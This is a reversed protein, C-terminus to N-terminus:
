EPSKLSEVMDIQRLKFFMVANVILSFLITFLLSYIYSSTYVVRGFMVSDVEVTQVIFMCLVRGLVVGFIAGLFTLLINERYVYTAVEGDYFGLVKLTALERLRETINISNLNYLVVFALLGASVILVVIVLNLSKLMDDLQDQVDHMYTVNLVGDQELIDRGTDEVQEKTYDDPTEFMLCNYTPPKGYVKEYYAPTMYIYHSMYNEFIASITVEANGYEEDKIEVTDGVGVGLLKATKESILVGDDTLEYTADSTRDGFHVYEPAKDTDAMVHLITEREAKGKQLTVTMMYGDMYQTVGPDTDLFDTLEEKEAPPRDDELYAIGKYVQIDTYQLQGVEFISDRLGFGVIMLAMCGGIGFVTMLFRRKYRMLNRVTSKWSFNLHNWIVKIRELFVRRGNAPAPPRMLDAPQSRLASYCAALTAGMTCVLSAATAMVAYSLHYPVLIKPIHMYMIEYAYIIIWPIVKEGTLIGIICGGATALFAYGLYKGACAIRSYGLAKMTGINIRQEEVMRTMSTLAMLAAVLFFIVPFVEGIARMRDANEGYGTYEPLTSRDYVYWKAEEIKDIEKEADAIEEGADAIEQDAEAKADDYEAWGDDLEQRAEEIEARAKAITDEQAYLEAWGEDIQAQGSELRSKASNLQSKASDLESKADTLEEKAADLQAKAEALQKATPAFAEEVQTKAQALADKKMKELSAAGSEYEQWGEDLAQQGSAIEKEAEELLGRLVAIQAQLEANKGDADDDTLQAEFAAIQADISAKESEYEAKSTDFAAQKQELTKKSAALEDEASAFQSAVEAEAADEAEKLATDYQAKGDKYEKLGADYEEKGADYSAKGDNYEKLGANYDAWGEDVEAQSEELQRRAAEIQDEGDSLETIAESLEQEGDELQRFADALEDDAEKKADELEQRADDLEKEADDILETRRIEGRKPTIDEIRARVEEVLDDYGDTFATQEKAGEVLVYAETYVDMDFTDESVMLWGDISGTGINTSGRNYSIYCPSSGLGVVTLHDSVLSDTVEDETGTELCIVDGVQYSLDMDAVCEGPAEPLRGEAVDIENMDPVRAMVHLVNQDGEEVSLFDQSYSGAVRQVGDVAGIALIDDETIGLTSLAKIDMLNREDFYADGTIRMSPESSRIGAFFAAGLAVIFLLSVFRSGSKKIERYFDKWTAKM